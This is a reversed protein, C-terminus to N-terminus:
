SFEDGLSELTEPALVFDQHGCISLHYDRSLPLATVRRSFVCLPCSPSTGVILYTIHHFYLQM